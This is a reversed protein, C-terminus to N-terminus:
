SIEYVSHNQKRMTVIRDRASHRGPRQRPGARPSVFFVPDPDRRFHHCM